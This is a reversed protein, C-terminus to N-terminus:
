RVVLSFVAYQGAGLTVVVEYSGPELAKTDLLALATKVLEDYRLELAENDFPVLAGAGGAVDARLVVVKAEPANPVFRSLAVKQGREVVLTEGAIALIEPENPNRATAALDNGKRDKGFTVIGLNTHWNEDLDPLFPSKREMSAPLTNGAAWGERRRPDANATDVLEGKENLLEVVDGEVSFLLPLDKDGARFVMPYILDAHVNKVVDDHGRELLFFGYPEITGQLRIERWILDEPTKPNKKRWRLIWGELNVPSDSLSRLEIWQDEASASTGAWAIEHIVVPGPVFGAAGAPTLGCSEVTIRVTFVVFQGYQDFARIRLEDSGLFNADPTYLLTLLAAGEEYRVANWDGAIAGHEPGSILEFSVPYGTFGTWLIDLDSIQVEFAKGENVCTRLSVDSAEMPDNVFSVTITVTAVNSYLEGDFARYTFTDTGYFNPNPTYTFSGDSNLTLAGHAPGSVLVLVATLPDGDVDYDNGLIGPKAVVLPTDENTTYSDDQAVPADNVCTVHITVTATDCAGAPDCAKYTFSDTGCFDPNPTYTITGDPNVTAWGHTPGSVISVSLPDGDPDYDNGLVPITVSSDEPVTAEDDNAVPADNVCTVTIRVTAVNSYLAGDYAKYTFSDEGCFNEAPTYTFSGDPNLALTGHAPGSVLVATLSDGDVDYDNGLIGPASVVLPTDENTTYRDDQAAPADNVCTVHITVTATDCAGAPDCAKYTFSDTGCFDPNPTYTITGDPNVTARGHTPGSVISVSLPDGDPDYDNGLVPIAVSSDELVSAEDDNAVPADNVCTVTIKVTAVNSYLAGDYAKYTFSDEGCFNGAPTYTFSGDPNLALTGHAPGSVLVATLPDGDVDSDNGLIGPAPVLLPTDENTTYSDDQAVPADNVCTVTITVTAVNSYLAGDYAKYTFSDEGCFNEAPTYTFSGDPNLTLTGHAPGSVLVATLPDGDVDSDNGLIGPAPVLLPTDENTTYSDDQAVPADNVCTVHITVTATDCAGAPDCAKYTFSDTGCFDPNPTYTITGDPNVTAWGHTPGSVISVSLPDGDPDYDNGLVPITVSSDEPVTAEDDNAVPADNVCTVTIRVTAVNSYLAGDYAKYTFSDEGCFNEAPTYTFSGDPNLALTGHAPGSVLVATLSDGDVDYDNGLIGPASVVLPTDENTTYRDDQAAPADNVCTVHITVTATDCAGAPDCAKYTFSDTGCFDPNPTYTITGDPNVTARGHTPGSVISVSLPDGDPDYDNGLVPITVSSDEPVTAEDDNAVPADNVCTVTIRVTAVNSYLAGDYAKYTFSDEGCFNEAPTYTFSGDPNLALTGHAPGSVLVATLPDGDVDYDNGLIGPAPVLLPTDENTTYRDDQAVPADNVCTVHITVTAEDCDGDTDCLRYIFSDQGCFNPDPMYTFSGDQNLTLSGHAPSTVVALSGFGDPYSDNGLIGPAAVYLPTDESTSYSDDVADVPQDSSVTIYVTATDTFGKTDKLQYVFSATGSWGSPPTYTFSGDPNLTVTGYDPGSVVVLEAVGDPYYDNGLVGPSPVYLPTNIATHYYDEVADLGRIFYPTATSKWCKSGVAYLNCDGTPCGPYPRNRWIAYFRCVWLDRTAVKVTAVYQNTYTGQSLDGFMRWATVLNSCDSSSSFGAAVMICYRDAATVSFDAYVDVYYVGGVFRMNVLYLRDVKVDKATCGSQCFPWQQALAGYGLVVALIGLGIFIKRFEM